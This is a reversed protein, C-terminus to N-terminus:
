TWYPVAAGTRFKHGYKQKYNEVVLVFWLSFHQLFLLIVSILFGKFIPKNFHFNCGFINKFCINTSPIYISCKHFTALFINNKISPIYITLCLLICTVLSCSLFVCFCCYKTTVNLTLPAIWLRWQIEIKEIYIKTYLRFFLIDHMDTDWWYYNKDRLMSNNFMPIFHFRYLTGTRLHRCLPNRRLWYVAFSFEDETEM